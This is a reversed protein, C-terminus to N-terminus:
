AAADPPLFLQLLDNLFRQGRKTPAIRVHDRAILGRQVAEQLPREVATLALGTREAFLAVEFGGALRLANMMFEFGLDKRLVTHEEQVPSGAATKQMYARPQKYRM